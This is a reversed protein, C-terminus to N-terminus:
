HGVGPPSQCHQCSTVIGPENSSDRLALWLQGQYGDDSRIQYSLGSCEWALPMIADVHQATLGIVADAVVTHFLMAGDPSLQIISDTLAYVTQALGPRPCRRYGGNFSVADYLINVPGVTNCYLPLDFTAVLDYQGALSEGQLHHSHRTPNDRILGAATRKCPQPQPAPASQFCRVHPTVSTTRNMWYAAHRACRMARRNPKPRNRGMGITQPAAPLYIM